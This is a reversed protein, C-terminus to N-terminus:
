EHDSSIVIIGEREDSLNEETMDNRWWQAIQLCNEGGAGLSVSSMKGAMWFEKSYNM